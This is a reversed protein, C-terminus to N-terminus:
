MQQYHTCRISCRSIIWNTIEQESQMCKCRWTLSSWWYPTASRPTLASSLGRSCSGASSRDQGQNPPLFTTSPLHCLLFSPWLGHSCLPIIELSSPKSSSVILPLLHAPIKDSESILGTTRSSWCHRDTCALGQPKKWWLGLILRNPIM